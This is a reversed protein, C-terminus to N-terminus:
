KRAGVGAAARGPRPDLTGRELELRGQAPADARAVIRAGGNPLEARLRKLDDEDDADADSFQTVLDMRLPDRRTKWAIWFGHAVVAAILLGGGILIFDKIDVNPEEAARQPG